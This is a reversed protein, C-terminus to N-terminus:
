PTSLDHGCHPDGSFRQAAGVRSYHSSRSLWDSRFVRLVVEFHGVARRSSRRYLYIMTGKMKKTVTKMDGRLELLMFIRICNKYHNRFFRISGVGANQKTATRFKFLLSGHSHTKNRMTCVIEPGRCVGGTRGGIIVHWTTFSIPKWAYNIQISCYYDSTCTILM